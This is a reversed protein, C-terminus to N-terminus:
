LLERLERKLVKGIANRPLEDLVHLATIRQTRGLRSNADALIEALPVEQRLVVFGVPTEGWQESPAAVVSADAVAPHRLLEDELDAPYINFGGSIILDKARGM